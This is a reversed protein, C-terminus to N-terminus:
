AAAGAARTGCRTGARRAGRVQLDVTRVGLDDAVEVPQRVEEEDEAAAGVAVALLRQPLGAAELSATVADGAATAPSIGCRGGM